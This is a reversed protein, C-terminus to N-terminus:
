SLSEPFMMSTAVIEGGKYDIAGLTRLKSLGNKFAKTSTAYGVQAALADRPIGNGSIHAELVPELLKWDAPALRDRWAQHLADLTLIAQGRDGALDRGVDTLQVGDGSYEIWGSTRMTALNNKFAKTSAAYGVFAALNPRPVATVGIREFSRLTGLLEMQKPTPDGEVHVAAPDRPRRPPPAVRSTAPTVTFPANKAVDVSVVVDQDDAVAKLTALLRKADERLKEVQRERAGLRQDIMQTARDVAAAIARELEAKDVGAVDFNHTSVNVIFKMAAELARRLQTVTGAHQRTAAKVAADIQSVMTAHSVDGAVRVPAGKELTRIRQQAGALQQQLEELTREKKEAEEELGAFKELARKVKASTAPTPARHEGRRRPLVPLEKPTQVLVPDLALAPGYAFFHGPPLTRLEKRGFKDFELEKAAREADNMGSRGILKNELLETVSKAMMSVRTGAGILCFGRKRGTSALEILPELSEAKGNQPAFWQLEDFLALRMNDWLGSRQPLHAMAYALRAVVHRQQDPVLDSLDYIASIQLELVRHLQLELAGKRMPIRQEGDGGILLYDFQERLKAFEGEKDIVLQQVHGHTEELLHFCAQTKGAGSSGQLLLRTEYLTELNVRVVDTAKGRGGYTLLPATM